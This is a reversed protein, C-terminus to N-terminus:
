ILNSQDWLDLVWHSIDRFKLSPLGVVLIIGRQYKKLKSREHCMTLDRSLFQVAKDIIKRM